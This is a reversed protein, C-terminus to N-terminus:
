CGSNSNTSSKFDNPTLVKRQCLPSTFRLKPQALKCPYPTCSSCTPGNLVSSSRGGKPRSACLLQGHDLFRSTSVTYPEQSMVGCDPSQGSCHRNEKRLPRVGQGSTCGLCGLYTWAGERFYEHEVRTSRGPAPALTPQKRRRAQSVAKKTRPSSSSVRMSLAGKGFAIMCISSAGLRQLSIQTV